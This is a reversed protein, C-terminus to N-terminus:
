RVAALAQAMVEPPVFDTFRKAESGQSDFLIVTPLGVVNLRKLTEAIMPDEDNTADVKVAMFRAAEQKVSANSFTVKDLEKCAGCWAAGFDVLLPRSQQRAQAQAAALPVHQWDFSEAPRTLLATCAFGGLTVLLIGVSKALRGTRAATSFDRHIAGLLVGIVIAAVAVTTGAAGGPVSRSLAPFANGLFYAAVVLLVIGFFSKVHVMWRGSKPLQLAFTGVLFFPLGLGLAFAAMSGAGLLVSRTKAIFTLIGTLVPGTCPSAVLGSVLGLVFAGRLGIGGMTALRNTVSSPLAFEFAGFMSAAMVVFLASISAVVWRNQLAAGFLNGTLGAIVGLPVFMAVIGAVFALSLGLGALRSKARRAGFVSVTVAIMPYVCPTLSVLAGGIWAAAMAALPGRALAQSYADSGGQAAMALSPICIAAVVSAIRPARRVM